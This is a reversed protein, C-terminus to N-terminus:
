KADLVYPAAVDARDDVPLGSLDVTATPITDLAPDFSYVFSIEAHRAGDGKIAAAPLEFVLSGHMQIGAGYPQSDFAPFPLIDSAQYAVGDITVTSTQLVLTGLRPTVDADVIVWVGDTATDGLNSSYGVSLSKALRIGTVTVTLQRAELTDGIGGRVPFVATVAANDPATAVAVVTGALAVLAAAAALITRARM